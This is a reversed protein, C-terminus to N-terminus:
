ERTGQIARAGDEDDSLTGAFEDGKPTVVGHIRRVLAAAGTGETWRLRISPDAVAGALDSAECEWAETCVSGTLAPGDQVLELYLGEAAGDTTEIRWRGDLPAEIKPAYTPAWALDLEIGLPSTELTGVATDIITATLDLRGDVPDFERLTGEVAIDSLSGGFWSRRGVSCDGGPCRALLASIRAADSDVWEFPVPRGTTVRVEVDLDLWWISEGDYVCGQLYLREAQEIDVYLPVGDSPAKGAFGDYDLEVRGTTPILSSDVHCEVSSEGEGADCGPLALFLGILVARGVFGFGRVSTM